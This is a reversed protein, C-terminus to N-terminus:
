EATDFLQLVAADAFVATNTAMLIGTIMAGALVVATVGTTIKKFKANALTTDYDQLKKENNEM